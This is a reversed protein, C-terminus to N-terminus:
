VLAAPPARPLKFYHNAKCTHSPTTVASTFTLGSGIFLSPVYSHALVSASFVCQEAQTHSSGQESDGLYVLKAVDSSGTCLTVWGGGNTASGAMTGTAFMAQQLLALLLWLAVFRQRNRSKHTRKCPLSM